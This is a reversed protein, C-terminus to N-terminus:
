YHKGDVRYGGVSYATLGDLAALAAYLDAYGIADGSTTVVYPDAQTGSGAIMMPTRGVIYAVIVNVAAEYKAINLAAGQEETLANMAAEVPRLQARLDDLAVIYADESSYLSTDYKEAGPLADIMAQVAAVDEDVEPTQVPADEGEEPTQVPENEGCACVGNEYTHGKPAITETYSDECDCVYTMVGEATCTAETTVTGVYTHTHEVSEPITESETAFAQMPVAGLVMVLALVM